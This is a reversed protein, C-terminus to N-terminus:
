ILAWLLSRIKVQEDALVRKGFLSNVPIPSLVEVGRKPSYLEVQLLSGEMHDWPLSATGRLRELWHSHAPSASM